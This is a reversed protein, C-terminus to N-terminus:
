RAEVTPKLWSQIVNPEYLNTKPKTGLERHHNHRRYLCRCSRPLRHRVLGLLKSHLLLIGGVLADGLWDNSLSGGVGHRPLRRRLSGSWASFLVNLHDALEKWLPVFQKGIELDEISRSQRVTITSNTCCFPSTIAFPIGDDDYRAVFDQRKGRTEFVLMVSLSGAKCHIRVPKNCALM